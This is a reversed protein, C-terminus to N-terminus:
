SWEELLTRAEQLDVTDFGETFWGYVEALMESAEATKGQKHLLRGLGMVARLEWSKAGYQRAIGLAERFSDEAAADANKGQLLMEGKLRHLEPDYFREENNIAAEQAEALVKLGEAPQSGAGYAEALLALFGPRFIGAGTGRFADLGHRVQTIGEEARGQNALVWGRLVTAWALWLAFGHEQSIAITQEALEQTAEPERRFQHLQATFALAYGLTFPRSLKRGLAIAEQARELAQDPYGLFWLVWAAYVRAGVGVDDRYLRALGAHKQPDYLRICEELQERAPSFEGQYFHRCNAAWHAYLYFSSEDLGDALRMLEDALHRAMAHNGRVLYFAFLGWLVPFVDSTEGLQGCLERSRAYAQEGEATAYGELVMCEAGLTMQLTLEQRAREATDPLMELVQLGRRALVVGEQHAFVKAAKEAARQFYHSAREHDRAAEFLFALESAVEADRDGYYHLLAQAVAASLSAKRTPALSDSLANQYLVHVFCYRLTFTRDPFEEEGMPQVLAHVSDLLQLQEEVDAADTELVRALVASHFENGQVSATVLLRRHSEDLRNIKKQIMSRVSQPLDRQIDPISHALAWGTGDQVMVQQDRMYRLLDVMFLPSGETRSHILAPFAAPFRHGPYELALYEQIDAQSLLDLLIERCVGRAELDLKVQLFPHEALQLEEPRYTVVILARMADFRRAVFTLLDVTSADAWHLDDFFLILPQAAFLEQLLAGLELKMREQSTATPEASKGAALPVIQRYWSPAVRQMRRAVSEGADGRLLTELAELFPLYAETGALRESCRGRVITCSADGATLEALFNEVVTTKGIGAEGAVCLLLGHEDSATELGAQLAKLTSGRGVTHRKVSFALPQGKPLAEAPPIPPTQQATLAEAFQTSTAFRDAPTRALAKCIAQDLVAPITERLRSVHPVPDSLRKAIIAQATPGTFPPEGALMEYLVCGLSYIDSRADVAREGSAQEPSMYAPTGVAFGTQTLREGGAKRLALAIGFDTVLAQGEHLLINEPKVDRHIVDHRHAYDLAGAVQETLRLAQDIALQKEHDVRERLSEGEVYPMVYYLFGDAEGSDLLPLIHPHNLRATIKIERLFRDAGLAAALEPRLVKIAVKREHKLDQALYVTAMGGHGVEREIAYRDALAAKLREFTDTM